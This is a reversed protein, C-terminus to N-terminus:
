IVPVSLLSTTQQRADQPPTPVGDLVGDSWYELVGNSWQREKQTGKLYSFFAFYSAFNTV